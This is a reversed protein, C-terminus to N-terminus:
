VLFESFEVNGDQDQDMLAFMQRQSDLDMSPFTRQFEAFDMLGDTGGHQLFHKLYQKAKLIRYRDGISLMSVFGNFRFFQLCGVEKM